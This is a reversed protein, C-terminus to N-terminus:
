NPSSRGSEGSSNSKGRKISPRKSLVVEGKRGEKPLETPSAGRKGAHLVATKHARATLREEANANPSDSSSNSGSGTFMLGAKAALEVEEDLIQLSGEIIASHVFVYQRLSQCLSMRQERMDDLIERVPEKM